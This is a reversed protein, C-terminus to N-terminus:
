EHCRVSTRRKGMREHITTTAAQCHPRRRQARINVAATALNKKSEGGDEQGDGNITAAYLIASNDPMAATAPNAARATSAVLVRDRRFETAFLSEGWVLLGTPHSVHAAAAPKRSGVADRRLRALLRNEAGQIPGFPGVAVDVDVALAAAAIAATLLKM